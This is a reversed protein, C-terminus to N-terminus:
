GSKLITKSPNTSILSCGDIAEAGSLTFALFPNLLNTPDVSENPLAMTSFSAFGFFPEFSLSSSKAFFTAFDFKALLSLTVDTLIAPALLLTPGGTSFREDRTTEVPGGGITGAREGAAAAAPGGGGGGGFPAPGGGGGIGVEAPGGGGGIGTPAPGGGGGIGTPAPGGGGGGGPIPPGGAGGEAPPIDRASCNCAFFFM